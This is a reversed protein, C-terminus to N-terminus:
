DEWLHLQRLAWENYKPFRVPPFGQRDRVLDGAKLWCPRGEKSPRLTGFTETAQVWFGHAIDGNDTQRVLLPAMHVGPKVALGTEEELERRAALEPTESRDIRGGPLGTGKPGELGLVLLGGNEDRRTLIVCAGHSVNERDQMKSFDVSHSLFRTFFDVAKVDQRGEPESYFAEKTFGPLTRYEVPRGAAEANSIGYRMGRSIEFDTYVVTRMAFRGWVLGAEIGLEREEPICDDLADTYMQHSCFPTEGRQLSDRICLWLYAKNRQIQGAYPSELIVPIM